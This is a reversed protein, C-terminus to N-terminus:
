PMSKPASKKPAAAQKHAEWKVKAVVPRPFLTKMAEDTTLEDARKTSKPDKQSPM